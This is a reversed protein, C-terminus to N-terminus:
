RFAMSLWRKVMILCLSGSRWCCEWVDFIVLVSLEADTELRSIFNSCYSATCYETATTERITVIVPLVTNQRLLRESRLLLLCYLIRDCYDRQDYCYCATCYETATTERITVILPLVNNQRLLRESRLLLLCYLIRDCYDRQDYCYSATCYDTATHERITFCISFTSYALCTLYLIM